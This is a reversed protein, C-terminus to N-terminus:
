TASSVIRAIPSPVLPSARSGATDAQLRQGLHRVDEKSEEPLERSRDETRWRITSLQVSLGASIVGSEVSREAARRQLPFDCAVEM